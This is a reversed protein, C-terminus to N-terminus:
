YCIFWNIQLARSLINLLNEINTNLAFQHEGTPNSGFNNYNVYGNIPFASKNNEVDIITLGPQTGPELKLKASNSKLRNINEIGVELDRLNLYDEKQNFFASKIYLDDNKFDEVKGEIAYIEIVGGSINQPKLYVKSTVYGRDM